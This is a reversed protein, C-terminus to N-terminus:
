YANALASLRGEFREIPEKNTQDARLTHGAIWRKAALINRVRHTLDSLLLRQRAGGERLGQAVQRAQFCECHRKSVNVFSIVAGDIKDDVTRHPRLRM